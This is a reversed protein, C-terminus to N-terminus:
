STAPCPGELRTGPGLPTGRLFAAAEMAAKGERQVRVLRLADTGCAVTLLDDIVTGAAAYDGRVLRADLVKVRRGEHRLWAGPVPALARVKRELTEAPEAWDLEGEAPTIKAAYSAGAASQPIPLLKGNAVGDLAELMLRGGTEAVRDHLAGATTRGDIPLREALVIPGTDLGEDMRMITAGSYADGALIARQIPAAGRWRPLLSAHLNFAGMRPAALVPRPLLLGYAVVVAADAMLAAFAQQEPLEKLSEPTRVELGHGLAAQHVPSRRERQGRGARRPPQTYVCALVHGAGLLAELTPLAFAPSGMFVLRLRTM